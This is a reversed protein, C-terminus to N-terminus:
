AIGEPATFAQQETSLVAALHRDARGGQAVGFPDDETILRDGLDRYGYGFIISQTIFRKAGVAEAAALLNTTGQIRLRDTEAMGSHRTPAKSLATLEHIVADAHMGDLARLLADRDLANAVIPTVGDAAPRHRRGLALVEHGEALLASTLPTGLLGTAGALLVKM